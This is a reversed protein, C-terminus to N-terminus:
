FHIIQFQSGSREVAHRGDRVRLHRWVLFSDHVFYRSARAAANASGENGEHAARLQRVAQRLHPLVQAKVICHAQAIRFKSDQNHGPVPTLV